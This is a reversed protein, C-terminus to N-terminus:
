KAGTGMLVVPITRVLIKFDLGLSWNDIYELDLNAWDDFDTIKNRGNVQWLCTIGPRMRLRRRHWDDYQEVERPLPPRPGILSMDGRLVNFFQPIEDLSFKRLFKGLPHIRPDDQLKFAPGQMENFRMLEQLREEANTDMTRFKYLVFKRGNLGCRIQKYFVPGPSSLKILVAFLLFFPALAVLAISSFTIDFLRKVMLHGLKDPTSEFSLLPFTYLTSLKMKSFQPEYIDVAVNVKIGETECMQIINEIKRLWLGPVVFVIEDVVNNHIIHALDEFMGMVKYGCIAKGVLSKENDVLGIIRLGWEPHSEILRMFNQARPGTGVLIINRFNLGRHRIYRFAWVVIVKSICLFIFAVLINMFIVSRSVDEIKLLYLFFGFLVFSFITSQFVIFLLDRVTRTRFSRYMGFTYLGSVWILTFAPFLGIYNQPPYLNQQKNHLLYCFFFSAMIVCTDALIMLRRFFTSHEKIM